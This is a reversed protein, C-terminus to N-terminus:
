LSFKVQSFKFPCAKDYFLSLCCQVCLHIVLIICFIVNQSAHAHFVTCIRVKGSLKRTNRNVSHAASFVQDNHATHADQERMGKGLRSPNSPKSIQAHACLAHSTFCYLWTWVYKWEAMRMWKFVTPLIHQLLVPFTLPLICCLAPFFNLRTWSKESICCQWQWAKLYLDKGRLSHGPNYKM